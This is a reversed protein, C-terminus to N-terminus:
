RQMLTNSLESSYEPENGSALRRLFPRVPRSGLAVVVSVVPLLWSPRGDGGDWYFSLPHWSYGEVDGFVRDTFRRQGYPHNPYRRLVDAATALERLRVPEDYEPLLLIDNQHDVRIQNVFEAWCSARSLNLTTNPSCGHRDGGAVVAFHSEAALRIVQQNENWSRMGNLELAHIHTGYRDIFHSLSSWHRKASVRVFNCCPHNLVVLTDSFSDILAFLDGILDESPNSTCHALSEMIPVARDQPLNHVGMHFVNGQFPVSWEVSMPVQIEPLRQQLSLVGTITDHDTISVIAMLGLRSIQTTESDFVMRPNVPPTWYARRFDLPKGNRQEYRKLEMRILPAVIPIRHFEIYRPLFDLVEKSHNTHSHLSIATRFESISSKARTFRQVRTQAGRM